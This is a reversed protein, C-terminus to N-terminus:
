TARGRLRFPRVGLLGKLWLPSFMLGTGVQPALCGLTCTGIHGLVLGGLTQIYASIEARVWPLPLAQGVSVLSLGSGELLNM